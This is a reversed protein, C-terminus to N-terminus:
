EFPVVHIAADRVSAAVRRLTSGHLLVEWRRRASEGLVVHTIGERRAFAVLGDPSTGARVRVVDGGLGEALAINRHLAEAREAGIRGPREGPTEVYVAFWTAGLRRALRAGARIVRPALANSSMCVMVREAGAVAAAASTLARRRERSADSGM